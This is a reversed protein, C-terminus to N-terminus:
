LAVNHIGKNQIIKILNILRESDLSYKEEYPRQLFSILERENKKKSKRLHEARFKSLYNDDKMTRRLEKMLKKHNPFNGNSGFAEQQSIRSAKRDGKEVIRGTSTTKGTMYDKLERGTVQARFNKNFKISDPHMFTYANTNDNIKSQVRDKLEPTLKLSRKSLEKYKNAAKNDGRELAEKAKKSFQKYMEKSKSTDIKAGRKGKFVQNARKKSIKPLFEQMKDWEEFGKNKGGVRIGTFLEKVKPDLLGKRGINHEAGIVQSLSYHGYDKAHHSIPLIKSAVQEQGEHIGVLGKIDGRQKPTLPIKPLKEADFQFSKVM